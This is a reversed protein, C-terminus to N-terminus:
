RRGEQVEPEGVHEVTHPTFPSRRLIDQHGFCSTRKDLYYRIDAVMILFIDGEYSNPRVWTEQLPFSDDEGMLTYNRDNGLVHAIGQYARYHQQSQLSTFKRGRSAHSSRIGAADPLFRLPVVNLDRLTKFGEFYAITRYVNSYGWETKDRDICRGRIDWRHRRVCLAFTCHCSRSIETLEVIMTLAERDNEKLFIYDRPRFAMWLNGFDLSPGDVSFGSLECDVMLTWTNIAGGLEKYMYEILFSVHKQADSSPDLGLGYSFLEDRYYFLCRPENFLTIHSTNVSSDKYEPVVAKLAAKMHPSRVELEVQDEEGDKTWHQTRVLASEYAETPRDRELHFKTKSGGRLLVKAGKANYVSDYHKVQCNVGADTFEVIAPRTPRIKQAFDAFSATDTFINAENGTLLFDLDNEM